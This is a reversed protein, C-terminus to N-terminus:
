PEFVGVSYMLIVAVCIGVGSALIVWIVKEIDMGEGKRNVLKLSLGNLSYGVSRVGFRDGATQLRKRLGNMGLLM